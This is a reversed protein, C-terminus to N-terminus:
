KPKFGQYLGAKANISNIEKETLDDSSVSPMVAMHDIICKKYGTIYAEYLEQQIKELSLTKGYGRPSTFVIHKAM